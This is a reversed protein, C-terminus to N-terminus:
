GFVIRKAKTPAENYLYLQNYSQNNTIMDVKLGEAKGLTYPNPLELDEYHLPRYRYSSVEM